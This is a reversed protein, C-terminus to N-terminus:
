NANPYLLFKFVNIFKMPSAHFQIIFEDYKGLEKEIPTNILYLMWISGLRERDYIYMCMYMYIYVGQYSHKSNLLSNEFAPSRGKYM